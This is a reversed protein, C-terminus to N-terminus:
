IAEFLKAWERIADPRVERSNQAIMSRLAMLRSRDVGGGRWAVGTNPLLASFDVRHPLARVAMRYATQEYDHVIVVNRDTAREAVWRISQQREAITRGNDVFVLDYQDFDTNAIRAEWDGDVFSLNIRSDDRTAEQIEKMWTADDELSDIGALDPFARRDLFTLTSFHGCGLELVRKIRVCRAVAMLVPVHSSYPVEVEHSLRRRVGTLARYLLAKSM